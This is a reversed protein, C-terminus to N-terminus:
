SKDVKRVSQAFWTRELSIEVAWWWNSAILRTAQMGVVCMPGIYLYIQDLNVIHLELLM